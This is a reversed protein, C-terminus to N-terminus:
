LAAGAFFKGVATVDDSSVREWESPAEYDRVIRAAIASVIDADPVLPVLKLPRAKKGTGGCADCSDFGRERAVAGTGDCTGCKTETKM